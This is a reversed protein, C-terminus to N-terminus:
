CNDTYNFIPTEINFQMAKWATRGYHCPIM